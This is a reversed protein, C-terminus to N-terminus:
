ETAKPSGVTVTSSNAGGFEGGHFLVIGVIVLSVAVGGLIFALFNNTSSAMVREQRAEATDVRGLEM